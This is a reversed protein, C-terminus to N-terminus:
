AGDPHPAPQGSADDGYETRADHGVVLAIVGTLLIGAAVVLLGLTFSGTADRIRGIAFPGVFGGINGIANILAIAGAAQAGRLLSAPLTWFIPLMALTGTAGITVAVVSLVPSGRLAASAAIGAFGVLSAYAIHRVRERARDSRRCWYVMGAAAIAYPVAVVYGVARLPVAASTFIQPIWLIIGYLGLDAGFYCLSLALMRPQILAQLMNAPRPARRPAPETDLRAALWNREEATLWRADAPTDPLTKLTVVGLLLSPVTETLFLWQWGALRLRGDLGLIAASIPGALATSVPIATMFTGVLRAREAAPVWYTLYYIVGPFFGAEAVGLVFRLTYFSAAGKVFAMAGALLAWSIMIRGIWRRAGVRHLILNSPIEFLCYGIFFIGAGFGYVSASFGLDRHMQQAAFGVNVRDIFAAFYLAGLFVVLHRRVKALVASGPDCRL